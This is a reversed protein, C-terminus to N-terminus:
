VSAADDDGNDIAAPSLGGADHSLLHLLDKKELSRLLTGDTRILEDSLEKKNAQMTLMKEELTNKCIMRVAIVKKDQGIRHARDIAQNEVAPNWWPDVLYVYDAATLNLGTGGVKLSILFVRCNSDEQFADVAAQRNKTAGTLYSFGIGKEVLELRILNLMSVFQSFVLIKHVPSKEEIQVMLLDIKAADARSYKDDGLLAPADCLQRLRTLGKL